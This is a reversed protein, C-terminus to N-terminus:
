SGMEAIQQKIKGGIKEDSLLEFVRQKGQVKGTPFDEYFYFSIKRTIVGKDLAEQLFHENEETPSASEVDEQEIEWAHPDEDLHLELEYKLNKLEILVQEFADQQGEFYRETKSKKAKKKRKKSEKIFGALKKELTDLHRAIM